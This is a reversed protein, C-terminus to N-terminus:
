SPVMHKDVVATRQALILKMHIRIAQLSEERLVSQIQLRIHDNVCYKGLYVAGHMYEAGLTDLM